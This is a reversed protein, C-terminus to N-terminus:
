QIEMKYLWYTNRVGGSENFGPEGHVLGTDEDGANHGVRAHLDEMMILRRGQLKM